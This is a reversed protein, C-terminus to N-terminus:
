ERHQRDQQAKGDRPKPRSTVPARISIDVFLQFEPAHVARSWEYILRPVNLRRAAAYRIAMEPGLREVDVVTRRKFASAPLVFRGRIEGQRVSSPPALPGEAPDGNRM